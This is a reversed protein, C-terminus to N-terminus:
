SCYKQTKLKRNWVVVDRIDRGDKSDSLFIVAVSYNFFNWRRYIAIYNFICLERTKLNALVLTSVCPM